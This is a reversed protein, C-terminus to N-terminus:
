NNLIKNFNLSKHVEAIFNDILNDRYEIYNFGIYKSNISKFFETRFNDNDFIGHLFTGQINKNHFELSYKQSIGCHIEYGKVKQNFVKYKGRKLIKNKYFKIENDIFNFGDEFDDKKSEIGDIDILNKFMMQYGGCIGFVKIKLNLNKIQEFLGISKLWRLDDITNKTGALIILNYSNLNQNTEIFDVRIESDIMLPDIDTFNSIRPFKIVGVRIKPNKNQTFNTISLGDEFGINLPIYPIIGIVPIKFDQEIIKIGDDFLTIDGRFKNIIVGIVNDRLKKPLLNYTGYISGFVGGREIDAVIIIKTNFEDAIYINSLDRNMLNLEVPSGAGENVVIDYNKDLYQYAKKVIPKFSEIDKFYERASKTFKAKGNIIVQSTKDKQPKLLIPNLHYSTPINLVSAQYYQAIGIESGDDCVQSNNSMNQAKFPAVRYGLNQLIKVIALTITSKGSDSSTGLISINQM